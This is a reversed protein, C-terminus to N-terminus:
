EFTEQTSTRYHIINDASIVMEGFANPTEPWDIKKICISKDKNITYKMNKGFLEQLAPNVIKLIDLCINDIYNLEIKSQRYYIFDAINFCINHLITKIGQERMYDILITTKINKILKNMNNLFNESPLQLNEKIKITKETNETNLISILKWVKLYNAFPIAPISIMRNPYPTHYIDICDNEPTYILLTTILMKFDKLLMDELYQIQNSMNFNESIPTSTKNQGNIFASIFINEKTLLLNMTYSSTSIKRSIFDNLLYNDKYIKEINYM